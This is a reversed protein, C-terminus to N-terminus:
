LIKITWNILLPEAPGKSVNLEAREAFPGIGTAMLIVKDFQGEFAEAPVNADFQVKQPELISFASIPASHLLTAGLYFNIADIASSPHQILRKAAIEKAQGSITNRIHNIIIRQNHGVRITVTGRFKPRIIHGFM